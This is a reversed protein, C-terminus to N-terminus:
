RPPNHHNPTHCALTPPRGVPEGCAACFLEPLDPAALVEALTVRVLKSTDEGSPGRPHRFTVWERTREWKQLLQSDRILLGSSFDIGFGSPWMAPTPGAPYAGRGRPGQLKPFAVLQPDHEYVFGRDYRLFDRHARDEPDIPQALRHFRVSPIRM